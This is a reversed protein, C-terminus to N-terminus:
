KVIEKQKDTLKAPFNVIMKVHLDGFDSTGRIPMGEEKIIQWSFPQSVSSSSVTVSHGDLHTIRKSFGMLAEELTLDMNYYLNNGVRKFV